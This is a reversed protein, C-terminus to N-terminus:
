VKRTKRRRQKRTRQKPQLYSRGMQILKHLKNYAEVANTKQQRLNELMSLNQPNNMEADILNNTADYMKQKLDALEKKLINFHNLFFTKENETVGMNTAIKDLIEHLQKPYVAARANVLIKQYNGKNEEPHEAVFKRANELLKKYANDM